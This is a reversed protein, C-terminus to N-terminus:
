VQFNLNFKKILFKRRLTPNGIIMLFNLYSRTEFQHKKNLGQKKGKNNNEAIYVKKFNFKM